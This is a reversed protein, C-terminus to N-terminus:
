DKSFMLNRSGNRYVSPTTGKYKKFMETFHSQSSFALQSGIQAVSLETYQLMRAATDIRVKMAYESINMGTEAKFIRSLHEQSVNCIQAIDSVLIKKNLHDYIYNVTTVTHRSKIEKNHLSKMRGAYDECMIDHLHSIEEPTNAKDVKVIYFDSLSYATPLDMGGEICYRAILAATVVFHYRFHRLKNDSLVGLGEKKHLPERACIEKVKSVDGAKIFAYFEMEPLYPAHILEDDRSIFEKYLDKRIM